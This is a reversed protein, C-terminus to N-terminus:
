RGEFLGRAVLVGMACCAFLWGFLRLQSGRDTFLKQRILPARLTLRAAQPKMEPRLHQYSRLFCLLSALGFGAFPLWFYWPM